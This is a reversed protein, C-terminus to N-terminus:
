TLNDKSLDGLEATGLRERFPNDEADYGELDEEGPEKLRSGEPRQLEPGNGVNETGGGILVEEEGDM